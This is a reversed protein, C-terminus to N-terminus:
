STRTAGAHLVVYHAHARECHQLVILMLMMDLMSMSITVLCCCLPQSRIAVGHVASLGLRLHVVSVEEAQETTLVEPLRNIIQKYETRLKQVPEQLNAPM